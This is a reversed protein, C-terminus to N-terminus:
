EGLQPKFTAIRCDKGEPDKGTQYPGFSVIDMHYTGSPYAADHKPYGAFPDSSKGSFYHLHRDWADILCGNGNISSEELSLIPPDEPANSLLPMVPTPGAGSYFGKRYSPNFSKVPRNLFKILNKSSDCGLGTTCANEMTPYDRGAGFKERYQECGAKLKNIFAVTQNVKATTGVGAMAVILVAILLCIIGIVVMLEVLTFGGRGARRRIAEPNAKM